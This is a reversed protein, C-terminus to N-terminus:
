YKHSPPLSPQPPPPTFFPSFYLCSVYNEQMSQTKIKRRVWVDRYARQCWVMSWFKVKRGKGKRLSIQFIQPGIKRPRVLTRRWKRKSAFPHSVSAFNSTECQHSVYFYSAFRFHFWALVFCFLLSFQRWKRKSAFNSTFNKESRQLFHAKKAQKRMQLSIFFFYLLFLVFFFRFSCLSFPYLSIRLCDTVFRLFINLDDKLKELRYRTFHFSALFCKNQKAEFCFLSSFMSKSESHLSVFFKSAFRFIKKSDFCLM